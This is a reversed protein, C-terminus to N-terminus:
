DIQGVKKVAHVFTFSVKFKFGIEEAAIQLM